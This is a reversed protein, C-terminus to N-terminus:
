FELRYRLQLHWGTDQLTDTPLDQDDLDYGWYIEGDLGEIPTWLLGLGISAITETGAILLSDEENSSQGWDFFPALKLNFRDRGTEDVFLPFQYELSATVGNDRVLLNERYGRVTYRGGVTFKYMALLPENALQFTSRAILRSDRWGFDKIYQLQGIFQTFTSDPLTGGNETAGLGNIGVNLTGRAAFVSSAGRQTWEATVFVSTGEAKGDIDGASFSFPLGLLTSKSHKNELGIQMTLRRDLRRIIPQTITVGWAEVNSEIDLTDFPAEVIESDTLNYYAEIRTDMATIPFSYSLAQDQVGDTLGLRASLEDSNGTLSRYAFLLTAREEAVSPSRYNDASLSLAWPSRENVAVNLRSDGPGVGPVLQANISTVLPEEQLLRLSTQLDGINLPASVGRAIRRDLYGSRLAQNGEIVVQGLVGEVVDLRVIGDSVNQDPIVVGSNVYGSNFYAQSLAQRLAHLEEVTVRRGEYPVVLRTVQDSDLVTNGRLQIEAVSIAPVTVLSPDVSTEPSPKELVIEVNDTHLPAGPQLLDPDASQPGPGVQATANGSLAASFWFLLVVADARM